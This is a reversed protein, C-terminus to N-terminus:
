KKMEESTGSTPPEESAPSSVPLRQYEGQGPNLIFGRQFLRSLMQGALKNDKALGAQFVGMPTVLGEQANVHDLILQMPPNLPRTGRRPKLLDSASVDSVDGLVFTGVPVEEGTSVTVLKSEITYELSLDERGCANKGQSMVRLPDGSPSDEKAFGFICRAVEGFASSGNISAVLDGTSGKIFHVIGIVIGDIAEAIRIWPSLAERLENSRYIDVKSKFTAMVPDVVIVTVNNRILYETMAREDDSALLSVYGGDTIKVRPTVIRSMDAGAARLAPKLVYKATEEAAIYAIKQPKGKWCGDLEGRSLRATFYRAATSKGTGPRGGFLTLAGVQMRGHGEYTWGWKPAADEVDDLSIWEIERRNGYGTPASQDPVARPNNRGIRFGSRITALASQEGDDDALGCDVAALMLREVVEEEDMGAGAVYSGCKLAALYLAANRGGRQAEAVQTANEERVKDLYALQRADPTGGTWPNSLAFDFCHRGDPNHPSHRAHNGLQEAVWQAFAQAGDPDGDALADLEDFVIEYGAGDRKPRLTGPLFVNCGFSQIDVGPYGPLRDNKSTSHVSPLEDHGAIYFHWGGSPTKVEAFVRVGLEALLARVRDIEGGNRPDVDVVALVGGTNACLAMGQRFNDIRSANEHPTIEQWSAPRVFEDRGSTATWVPVALADLRSVFKAAAVKQNSAGSGTSLHDETTSVDPLGEEVHQVDNGTSVRDDSDAFRDEIRGRHLQAVYSGPTATM